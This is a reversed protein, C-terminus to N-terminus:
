PILRFHTMPPARSAPSATQKERPYSFLLSHAHISIGIRFHLWATYGLWIIWFLCIAYIRAQRVVYNTALYPRVSYTIRQCSEPFGMSDSQPPTPTALRTALHNM